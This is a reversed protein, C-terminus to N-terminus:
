WLHEGLQGLRLGRGPDVACGARQQGIGPVEGGAVDLRDGISPDVRQQRGPPELVTLLRL